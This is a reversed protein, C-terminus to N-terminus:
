LMGYHKMKRWLTVTSIGLMAAAERRKQGADRLACAIATKEAERAASGLNGGKIKNQLPSIHKTGHKKEVYERIMVPLHEPMITERDCLNM